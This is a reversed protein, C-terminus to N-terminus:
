ARKQSMDFNAIDSVGSGQVGMCPDQNIILASWSMVQCLVLFYISM